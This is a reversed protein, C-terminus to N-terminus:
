KRLTTMRLGKSVSLIFEASLIEDELRSGESRESSVRSQSFPSLAPM